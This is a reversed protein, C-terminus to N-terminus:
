TNRRTGPEQGAWPTLPLESDSVCICVYRNRVHGFISEEEHGVARGVKATVEVEKPYPVGVGM